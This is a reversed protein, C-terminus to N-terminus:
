TTREVEVYLAPVFRGLRADACTTATQLWAELRATGVPLRLSEFECAAQDQAVPKSWEAEDVAVHVTGSPVGARLHVRVAFDAEDETVRVTWYGRLTDDRWGERGDTLRWDNQSLLVPNEHATGLPVPAPDFTRAGRTSCVDDFWDDYHGRLATVIDPNQVALDASEAADAELDYLEDPASEHPRTLKWRQDIAAYNRYRVPTDGRHWHMFVTREPWPQREGAGTLLPALSLGDTPLEPLRAGGLEVLTPLVDVTAAVRDIDRGAAIRGPWRWFSPVQIGGQYMSGKIGRLGANFRQRAERNQSSGCPGHDSTFVVLTREQLQLEDLKALLRGVNRDINTVMGYLRAHQENVGAERYPDAWEDGIQLPSHPANFSLYAFFPQAASAEIFDLCADTFVDSCYGHSAEPAGHRVVVPDFYSETERRHNEPRDGPQGIGGSLHVLSDGFGMDMPRSPHNDGLHWKGFCGTRYGAAALCRAITPEEPDLTARGCYTDFARTRLHYRGTLTGARAPTCLPGSCYRTLRSAESHLRDLSPTTTPVPNGHCALDGWALDDCIIFVINPRDSVPDVAGLAGSM